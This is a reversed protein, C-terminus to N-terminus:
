ESGILRAYPGDVNMMENHAGRQVVKGRELVIIEDCDRITSLRHAVIICTCGRMRINDDILKETTPDLASTAEDLILISPDKVLARAIEMRQRQGGSFNNGEEALMMDYGGQRAAIDGHIRADKASGIIRAEPMTADWMTLNDRVTGGFLFIEQDVVGISNTLLRDPYFDRPKGDFLIEGGWPEFLGAVLRAVTSKGSGSGGVIAVRAGPELSLDFEEILPPDLKCYGFTLGKIEIRGSLKVPLESTSDDSDKKSFTRDQPYNLVDDLRKIDGDSEQLKGGLAIMTNVPQLFSMMLTQFAVLMGVSMRGDMVRLGGLALIAVNNIATLMPPIASLFQSSIGMVQEANVLKAQYGAWMSFFDSEGGTSKLTEIMQIGNMTTGLLKGQEQLMRQNLDTRKRSVFRLAALNFLAILISAVTLVFDYQFMLGAYFVAMVLNM